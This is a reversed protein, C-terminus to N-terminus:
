KKIHVDRQPFPITVNNERFAKDIMFRLDSKVNEVVFTKDSWFFLQFVLSSDGFDNFRVFPEPNHEITEHEQACQLLLSSVLEVDSGYAVGVQVMFRTSQHIHSWNVVRKSVLNSNPVILRIDDRTNVVSTRLGIQEVKGVVGDFEIVDNVKLTGEFLLIIGSVIDNFLQQIGLGLGVLLAASGAMLLSIDLGITDLAILIALVWIIYKTLLFVSNSKGIDLMRDRVKRRFFRRLLKILLFAVVLVILAIALNYVSMSFGELEIIRYNIIEKFTM